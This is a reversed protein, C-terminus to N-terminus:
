IVGARVAYAVAHCRNRLNFRSTVDHIVNKVTRESYALMRAIEDTGYGEAVLRLVDVERASFGNLLYGRPRLVTRELRGLQSLLSGLLDPPLTGHGRVAATVVETLREVTVDNRRLLACAGAEVIALVGADDSETAIVVVHEAGARLLSRISAAASEGIEEVMLVAVDAYSPDDVVSLTAMTRLQSALGARSIADDVALYASVRRSRMDPDRLSSTM